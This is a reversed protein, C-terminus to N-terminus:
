KLLIDDVLHRPNGAPPTGARPQLGIIMVVEGDQCYEQRFRYNLSKMADFDELVQMAPRLYYGSVVSALRQYLQGSFVYEINGPDPHKLLIYGTQSDLRKKFQTISSEGFSQWNKSSLKMIPQIFPKLLRPLTNLSLGYRYKNQEWETWRFVDLLEKVAAEDGSEIVTAELLIDKLKEIEAGSDVLTYSFGPFESICRDIEKAIDLDQGAPGADYTSGSVADATDTGEKGHINITAILPMKKDFVPISYAIDADYGYKIVGQRLSEIFTGQSMLLQKHDSDVVPLAKDTDAYLEVSSDSIIKVLWPQMNHGSAARIGHAIIRLQDNELGDVYRDSWVSKYKPSLFTGDLGIFLLVIILLLSGIIIMAKNRKKMIKGGPIDITFRRKQVNKVCLPM